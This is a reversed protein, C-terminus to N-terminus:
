LVGLTIEYQGQTADVEKVPCRRTRGNPLKVIAHATLGPRAAGDATVLRVNAVGIFAAMKTRHKEITGDDHAIVIEVDLRQGIRAQGLSQRELTVCAREEVSLPQCAPCRLDADSTPGEPYDHLADCATCMGVTDGKPVCEDHGSPKVRIVPAMFLEGDCFHCRAQISV